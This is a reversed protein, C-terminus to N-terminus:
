NSEELSGISISIIQDTFITAFPLRIKNNQEKMLTVDELIFMGINDPCDKLDVLKDIELTEAFIEAPSLPNKYKGDVKEPILVMKGIFIGAATTIVLKHNIEGEQNMVECFRDAFDVIKTKFYM